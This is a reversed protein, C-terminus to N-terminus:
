HCMMSILSKTSLFRPNDILSSASVIPMEVLDTLVMKLYIRPWVVRPKQMVIICQSVSCQNKSVKEGFILSM